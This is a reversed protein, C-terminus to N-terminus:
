FELFISREHQGEPADQELVIKYFDETEEVSSCGDALSQALDGVDDDANKTHLANNISMWGSLIHQIRQNVADEFQMSTLAPIIQQKIGANLTVLGELQKQVGALGLRHKKLDEDEEIDLDEGASLKSQLADIMHDVDRNVTTKHDVFEGGCFYLDYFKKLAEFAPKDVYNSSLKFIADTCDSAGKIANGGLETMIKFFIEDIGEECGNGHLKQAQEGM